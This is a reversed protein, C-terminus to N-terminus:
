LTTLLSYLQYKHFNLSYCSPWIHFEVPICLFHFYSPFMVFHVYLTQISLSNSCFYIDSVYLLSVLIPFICTYISSFMKDHEFSLSFITNIACHLFPSSAWHYFVHRTQEPSQTKSGWCQQPPLRPLSLFVHKGVLFHPLFQNSITPVSWISV